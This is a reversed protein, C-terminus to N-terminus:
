KCNPLNKSIFEAAKPSVAPFNNAYKEFDTDRHKWYSTNFILIDAEHLEEYEQLMEITIFGNPDLPCDILLPKRYIFEEIPVADIGKGNNLHHWPADVHTGVHLYMSLVSGNWADGKDLRERPELKVEPMGPYVPMGEYIPYGIEVYKSM